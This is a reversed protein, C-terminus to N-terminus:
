PQQHTLNRQRQLMMVRARALNQEVMEFGPYIKLAREFTNIAKNFEGQM